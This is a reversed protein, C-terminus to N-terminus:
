KGRSLLHERLSLATSSGPSLGSTSERQGQVASDYSSQSEAVTAMVPAGTSRRSVPTSRTHTDIRKRRVGRGTVERESSPRLRAMGAIEEPTGMAVIRGGNEGGEPGLDIIYDAHAIVDLNHEIVIVTNGRDVLRDLVNLLKQVDAFHLGTTPEDLLYLNNSGGAYLESALKVRQAEGGSLTTAPQGLRIYGLGVDAVTELIRVIKPQANFFERAQDVTMELVEAINKGRYTVELTERNYRSGNCVDCPVYVDPLFHMEVLVSGAGACAECRGGKVNFSFRGPKYGRLRAEETQAFLRRIEDFVGTYTAPNSRPTRGIPSQDVMIVREFHDAGKIESAIEHPIPYGNKLHRLGEYIVHELLTSKGSGSVGTLCTFVQVPIRVRLEKLNHKRAGIIELFQGAKPSRRRSPIPITLAGSLYKGTLSDSCAAIDAPPGIAVINGGQEGAGPGLDVVFDAARITEEDHEVIILTNGLDRLAHLIEILRRNDRPHLGITPEDLVYMVGTLMNGIQTALRIRQAEGGALTGAQRDMTLYNLGVKELFDLRANVEKLIPSVVPRLRALWRRTNLFERIKRVTWSSLEAIHVGDIRVSLAEPKLRLGHCEPCVQERMMQEISERLWEGKARAYRRQLASVIGKWETKFTHVRGDRTRWRMEEIQGNSGYFIKHLLTKPLEGFPTHVSVNANELLSRTAQFYYHDLLGRRIPVIAGEILSRRPDYLESEVIAYVVGLGSCRPCAGYPSNFSFLRPSIEQYAFHCRPCAFKVSFLDEEAKRSADDELLAVRVIGDSKKLALEVAEALRLRDSPDVRLRDVVIDINHVKYRALPKIESSLRLLAGDVRVRSFGERFLSGLLTHYDGKRGIVVPSLIMVMRGAYDELIAQIIEQPSRSDLPIECNPCFPTGARAYLLRLYDYIETVTGVTSRPNASLAKQNIAIAPSLGEILDVEPKKMLGLFQRAYASLSEVYRRQGEAFLTDFALSSKGSGSVGTIVIMKNRPLDLDINKLNHVRVGRLRIFSM